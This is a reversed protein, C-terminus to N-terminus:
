CQYLLTDGENILTEAQRNDGTDVPAQYTEHFMVEGAKGTGTGRGGKGTGANEKRRWTLVASGVPCHGPYFSSPTPGTSLLGEETLFLCTVHSMHCTVLSM